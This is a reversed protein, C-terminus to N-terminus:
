VSGRSCSPRHSSPFPCGGRRRGAGLPCTARDPVCRSKRTMIGGNDCTDIRWPTPTVVIGCSESRYLVRTEEFMISPVGALIMFIFDSGSTIPYWPLPDHDLCPLCKLSKQCSKTF